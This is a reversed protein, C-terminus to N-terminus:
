HHRGFSKEFESVNRTRLGNGFYKGFSGFTNSVESIFRYKQFKGSVKLLRKFKFHLLLLIINLLYADVLGDVM